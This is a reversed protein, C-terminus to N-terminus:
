NHLDMTIDVTPPLQLSKYLQTRTNNVFIGDHHSVTFVRNQTQIYQSIKTHVRVLTETNKHVLHKIM